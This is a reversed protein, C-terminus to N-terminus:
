AAEGFARRLARELNGGLIAARAKADYGREALRAPLGAVDELRALGAPYRYPPEPIPDTPYRRTRETDFDLGFGVHDVGVLRVIHDLHRLVDTVSPAGGGVLAPFASVGIVGGTKGCAVIQEDTLNLPHPHLAAANVHTFVVPRAAREMVELSSRRGTSALDILIGSRTLEDVAHRGFRTLRLDSPEYCGDAVLNRWGSTLKAVRLGAARFERARALDRDMWQLGHSHAIVAVRGRRGAASWDAPQEALIASSALEEMTRRLELLARMAETLHETEVVPVIVAAVGATRAAALAARVTAVGRRPAALPVCGVIVPVGAPPDAAPVAEGARAGLAAAAAVGTSAVFDRRSMSSDSM